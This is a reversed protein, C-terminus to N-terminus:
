FYEKLKTMEIEVDYGLNSKVLDKLVYSIQNFDDSNYRYGLILRDIKFKQFLLHQNTKIFPCEIKDVLEKQFDSTLALRKFRVPKLSKSIDLETETNFVIEKSKAQSKNWKEKDAIDTVIPFENGTM